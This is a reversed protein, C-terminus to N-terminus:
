FGITEVTGDLCQLYRDGFTSDPFETVYQEFQERIVEDDSEQESQFFRPLYELIDALKAIQAYPAEEFALSRIEVCGLHILYPLKTRLDTKPPTAIM